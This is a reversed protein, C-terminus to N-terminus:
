SPREGMKWLSKTVFVPLKRDKESESEDSLRKRNQQDGSQRPTPQQRAKNSSNKHNGSSKQLQMDQDRRQGKPAIGLKRAVMLERRAAYLEHSRGVIPLLLSTEEGKHLGGDANLQDYDAMSRVLDRHMARITEQIHKIAHCNGGLDNMANAPDQLCLLYPQRPRLRAIRYQYARNPDRRRLAAKLLRNRENKEEASADPSTKVFPKAVMDRGLSIGYKEMNFNSWFSLFHLLSASPSEHVHAPTGRRTLAAALMMFTGYASIGGIFPDVFGRIGFATRLVAYLEHIHPVKELYEKMIFDQRGRKGKAIIQVDIGTAVHQTTIIANPPARYITCMYDKGIRLSHHLQKMFEGLPNESDQDAFIGIDIDSYPMEVGTETSGFRYAVINKGEPRHRICHMIHKHVYHRAGIEGKSPSMDKKFAAIEMDLIQSATYRPVRKLVNNSQAWPARIPPDVNSTEPPVVLGKYNLTIPPKSSDKEESIGQVLLPRIDRIHQSLEAMRAKWFREGANSQALPHSDWPSEEIQEEKKMNEQKEKDRKRVSEGDIMGEYFALKRARYDDGDAASADADKQGADEAVASYSRRARPRQSHVGDYLNRPQRLSRPRSARGFLAHFASTADCANAACCRARQM